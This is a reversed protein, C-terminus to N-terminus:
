IPYNESLGEGAVLPQRSWGNTTLPYPMKAKVNDASLPAGSGALFESLSLAVLLRSASRELWTMMGQKLAAGDDAM